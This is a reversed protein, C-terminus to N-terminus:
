TIPELICVPAHQLKLNGQRVDFLNHTLALHLLKGLVLPAQAEMDVVLELVALRPPVEPRSEVGVPLRLLVVLGDLNTHALMEEVEPPLYDLRRLHHQWLLPNPIVVTLVLLVGGDGARVHAMTLAGLPPRIPLNVHALPLAVRVIALPAEPVAHCVELRVSRRGDILTFPRAPLLVSRSSQPILLVKLVPTAPCRQRTPLMSTDALDVMPAESVAQKVTPADQAHLLSHRLVERAPTAGARLRTRAVHGQRDKVRSGDDLKIPHEM